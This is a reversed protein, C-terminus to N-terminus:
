NLLKIVDYLIIETRGQGMNTMIKNNILYMEECVM